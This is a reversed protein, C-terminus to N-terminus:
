KKNKDKKGSNKKDSDKKESDKKDSDGNDKIVTEVEELIIDDDEEFEEDEDDIEHKMVKIKSLYANIIFNETIYVNGNESLLKEGLEEDLIEIADLRKPAVPKYDFGPIIWPCAFAVISYLVTIMIIVSMVMSSHEVIAIKAAPYQVESIIVPMIYGDFADQDEGVMDGLAKNLAEEMTENKLDDRVLKGYVDYSGGSKLNQYTKNTLVLLRINDRGDKIFYYGGVIEGEPNVEDYGCYEPVAECLFSINQVGEEYLLDVGDLSNIRQYSYEELVNLQFVMLILLVEIILIPILVAILNRRLLKTFM